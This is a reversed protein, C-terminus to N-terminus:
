FANGYWDGVAYLPVVLINEYKAFNEMSFRGGYSSKKEQLFIHMSKMAGKKGSKVEVPVVQGSRQVVYDVEANSNRAERQWYFLAEQRYCSAAKLLELGTYQEAIARKNVAEFDTESILEGINLQLLRQFVGTDLLLLKKNKPNIEAGLPIGNAATHTVSIVLGGM